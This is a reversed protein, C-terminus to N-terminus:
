LGGEGEGEWGFMHPVFLLPAPKPHKWVAQLLWPAKVTGENKKSVYLM